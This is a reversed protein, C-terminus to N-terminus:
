KTKVKVLLQGDDGVSSMYSITRKVYLKGDEYKLMVNSQIDHAEGYYTQEDAVKTLKWYNSFDEIQCIFTEPHTQMLDLAQTVDIREILNYFADIPLQAVIWLHKEKANLYFHTYSHVNTAEKPMPAGIIDEHENGEWLAKVVLKWENKKENEKEKNSNSPASTSPAIIRLAILVIIVITLIVAIKKMVSGKRQKM